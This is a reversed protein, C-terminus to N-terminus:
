LRFLYSMKLFFSDAQRRLRPDALADPASLSQGYGAYLVTGPSPLVSLLANTTLSTSRVAVAPAYTDGTRILVPAGTRSDDRLADTDNYEYQSVVRAFIARAIQYELKLRPIHQLHVRTGDSWRWYSQQVYTLTARLQDTPRFILSANAVFFRASSWEYFNEDKGFIVSVDGAFASFQPTTLQLQIDLNPLSGGTYPITDVGGGSRPRAVYYSAYLASDYGFREIFVNGAFTWGGRLRTSTRIHFKRDQWAQGGVFKDYQWTGDLYIGPTFAEILGGPKGYITYRQDASLRVIGARTVFGSAARFDPGVARFAYLTNLSRGVRGVRLEWLPATTRVDDRRTLSGALQGNVNISGFVLRTDVSAMRNYDGGDIRDTYAFGIRSTRGLDRQLRLVNVVPNTTGSRSASKDDVASLLGVTSGLAQGTLKVAEVPAVIRRTYILNNPVVFLESGELFFPRREPFFLTNRPDFTVQAADAEVQSFDPKITANATLNNSIGWRVNGGWQPRQVNYGWTGSGSPSPAGAATETVVPNLDLVLGRHLDTLDVLRGSQGLFTPNSRKAPVWSYEYGLRQVTRVVNIGWTQQRGSQYRISKFPIRLEVEYGWSTVHGKSQWVFDPSLDPAERVITVQNSTGGTEALVGDTQIGLPNVDFVLARRGDNFTGILLQVHDDTGSKDRDGLTARAGHEDYARIGFYIATPSYWVLVSTSDDAAVGDAPFFQSFDRLEAAEKWAPEDLAGDIAVDQELRPPHVDLQGARGSYATPAAPRLSDPMLLALALLLM